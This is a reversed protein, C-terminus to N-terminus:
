NRTQFTYEKLRYFLLNLPIPNIKNRRWACVHTIKYISFTGYVTVISTVVNHSLRKNTAQPLDTSKDQKGGVIFNVAVFYQQFQHQVGCGYGRYLFM